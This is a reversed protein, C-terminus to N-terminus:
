KITLYIYDGDSDIWHDAVYGNGVSMIWSTLSSAETESFDESLFWSKIESETWTHANFTSLNFASDRYSQSTEVPRYYGETLESMGNSVWTSYEVAGTYITYTSSSSSSDDDDDSDLNCGVLGFFFVTAVFLAAVFWRTKSSFFKRM